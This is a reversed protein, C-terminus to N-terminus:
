VVGQFEENEANISTMSKILSKSGLIVDAINQFTDDFILFVQTYNSKISYPSTHLIKNVERCVYLQQYYFTSVDKITILNVDNTFPTLLAVLKDIIRSDSLPKNTYYYKEDEGTWVYGELSMRFQKIVRNLSTIKDQLSSEGLDIKREIPM